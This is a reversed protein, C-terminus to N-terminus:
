RQVEDIDQKNINTFTFQTNEDFFCLAGNSDTYGVAKDTIKEGTNPDYGICCVKKTGTLNSANKVIGLDMGTRFIRGNYRKDFQGIKYIENNFCYYINQHMYFDATGVEGNRHPKVPQVITLGNSRSEGKIPFSLFGFSPVKPNDLYMNAYLSLDQDSFSEYLLQRPHCHFHFVLPTEKKARYKDLERNLEEYNTDNPKAAGGSIHGDVCDFDSTCYDIYIADPDEKSRRGVFFTGTEFNSNRTKNIMQLLRLYCDDSLIIKTKLGLDDTSPINSYQDYSVTELTEM